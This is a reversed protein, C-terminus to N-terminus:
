FACNLLTSGHGMIMQQQGTSNTVTLVTILVCAGKSARIMRSLCRNACYHLILIHPVQIEGDNHHSWKEHYINLLRYQFSALTSRWVGEKVCSLHRVKPQSELQPILIYTLSIMGTM